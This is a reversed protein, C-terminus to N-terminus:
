NFKREQACEAAAEGLNSRLSAVLSSPSQPRSILAAVNDNNWKNGNIQKEALTVAGRKRNFSPTFFCLPQMFLSFLAEAFLQVSHGEGLPPEAGM